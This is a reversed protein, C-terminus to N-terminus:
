QMNHKEKEFMYIKNNFVHLDTSFLVQIDFWIYETSTSLGHIKYTVM